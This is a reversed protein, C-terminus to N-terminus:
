FGLNFKIFIEEFIPGCKNEIILLRKITTENFDELSISMRKIGGKGYLNKVAELKDILYKDKVHPRLNLKIMKYFMGDSIPTQNLHQHSVEISDKLADM